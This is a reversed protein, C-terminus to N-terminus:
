PVPATSVVQSYLSYVKTSGELHYARIKYYYTRGTSLSTHVFYAATTSKLLAYNGSESAAWYLEYMTAGSVAGWSVKISNSSYSEASITPTSPKVKAYKVASYASYTTVGNVTTYALVKYYYYRGTALGTSTYSTSTTAGLYTYTGSSSTSRYVRYGTAGNVANWSVKLSTYTNASVTLVPTAPIVKLCTAKSYDGYVVYAGDILARVKYYYIKGTVLDADTYSLTDTTYIPVYGSASSTSRSIEYKDAGNIKNWTINLSNYSNLAVNVTPASPIPTATVIKSYPGYVKNGNVTRYAKVKYYYPMNTTLGEHTYSIADAPIIDLQSQIEGNVNTKYLEYGSAGSVSAWSIKNSTYGASIASPVPASPLPMASTVSSFAGYVKTRGVTRYARVKYYYNNGTALSVHTYYKATTAKLLKYTGAETTCYYLEYGSAGSVASWSVRISNYNYSAASATPIAPIVKAYKVASYASYTTVGNATTYALVKYYYYKGTALGTSTYSTSTTAGLYTYTGSSSTARYVRYGTAGDVANWGVKLSTYTNASVTIVPTAPIVKLCTAKSYDGYVVYAGDILARVKYYYTVGTTLDADTYSLENTTHIPVYGSSSSTSRSIEYKNAGDIENWTINLSNYSNLTVKVNPACPVPTATIVKSYPGYVKNGNVIRYAKVKYYYPTNTTLGEHTYSIATEPAIVLQNQIEGNVDTQYLEYGGAGLVATWSIKNSKYGASIASPVPASPVPMASTVSSYSGYVKTRGVIRYARVKYYYTSGTSLSTHIYYSSTTTKLLTYSGNESTAKYLEYGSAGLVAGWSVKISNYNYSAASVASVDPVVPGPQAYKYSSFSSYTTYGDSCVAKVKYYYYQGAKLFTDELSCLPGSSEM